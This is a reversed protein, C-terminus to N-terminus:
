LLETNEGEKVKGLCLEGVKKGKKKFSQGGSPGREKGGIRNEM